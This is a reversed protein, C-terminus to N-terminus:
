VTLPLLEAIGEKLHNLTLKRDYYTCGCKCKATFCAKFEPWEEREACLLTDGSPCLMMEDCMRSKWDRWPFHELSCGGAGRCITVGSNGGQFADGDVFERFNQQRRAHLSLLDLLAVSPIKELLQRHEDKPDLLRLQLTYKSALKAEEPWDFHCAIKYLRLPEDLCMPSTIATRVISIPGPMDWEEALNLVDELVDFSEWPPLAMANIMRLVRELIADAKFTPL